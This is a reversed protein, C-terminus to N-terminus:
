NGIYLVDGSTVTFNSSGPAESGDILAYYATWNEGDSLWIITARGALLALLDSATADPGTYSAVGSTRSFDSLSPADAEADDAAGGAAIVAVGSVGNATAIVTIVGSGTIVASRSAVGDKTKSDVGVFTAPSGTGVTFAVDVPAVLNGNVDKVTATATLQDGLGTGDAAEISVDVSTPSGTVIFTATDTPNTGIRATVTYEGPAANGLLTVQVVSQDGATNADNDLVYDTLEVGSLSNDTIDKDDPGKLTATVVTGSVLAATVGASDTASISLNARTVATDTGGVDIMTGGQAVAGADEISLNAPATAVATFTLTFDETQVTASGITAVAFVRVTGANARTVGFNITNDQATSGNNGSASGVTSVSDDNSVGGGVAFVTVSLQSTAATGVNSAKDRSNLAEVEIFIVSGATATDTEPKDDAAGTGRTDGAANTTALKVSASDLNTGPDGVTLNEELTDATAHTARITFDGQPAGAQHRYIGIGPTEQTLVFGFIPQFTYESATANDVTVTISQGDGIIFDSDDSSSIAPAPTQSLATAAFLAVALAALVAFAALNTRKRALTGIM